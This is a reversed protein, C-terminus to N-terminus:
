NISNFSKVGALSWYNSTAKKWYVFIFYDNETDSFNGEYFETEASNKNDELYLVQYNYYGQKLYLELEYMKTNTNYKLMNEKTFKWFNFYGSIYLNANKLVFELPVSFKVKVYDADIHSNVGLNNKILFKGNLDQWTFYKTYTKREEPYLTFYYCSDKFIISKTTQNQFRVDKADFWRFENGAEFLLEQFNDYVIENSSIFTPYINTKANDFRFNQSVLIRFEESPNQSFFVPKIKIRLQHHTKRYETIQSPFVNAEINVLPEYVFFKLSFQPTKNEDYVVVIYNGSKLIKLDENPLFFEYHIYRQSTNFSFYFNKIQPYQIGEAYDFFNIKTPKWNIDCHAITYYYNQMITNFDDFCIQLTDNSNLQIVPYSLENGKRFILPTHINPNYIYNDYRIINEFEDIQSYGQFNLLLLFLIIIM